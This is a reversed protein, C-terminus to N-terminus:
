WIRAPGTTVARAARSRAVGAWTASAQSSSRAGFMRSMGPVRARVWRASFRPAASTRSSSAARSSSTRCRGPARGVSGRHELWEDGRIVTMAQLETGAYLEYIREGGLWEIWDEKLWVPCPAAFHWLTQLSSLDYRARVEEGLRWIRLMMTPVLFLFTVRFEEVAALTAEPDFRPLMVIHCGTFLGTTTLSNPGNHYLPGVM